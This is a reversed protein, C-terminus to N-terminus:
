LKFSHLAAKNAKAKALTEPDLEYSAYFEILKERQADAARIVEDNAMDSLRRASKLFGSVWAVVFVVAVIIAIDM